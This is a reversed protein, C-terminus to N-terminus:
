FYSGFATFNIAPGVFVAFCVAPPYHIKMPIASGKPTGPGDYFFDTRATVGLFDWLWYDVRVQSALTNSVVVPSLYPDGTDRTPKLRRLYGLQSSGELRSSIFFDCGVYFGPGFSTYVHSPGSVPSPRSYVDNIGLSAAASLAAYRSSFWYLRFYFNHHCVSVLPPGTFPGEPDDFEYSPESALDYEIGVWKRRFDLGLGWTLVPHDDVPIYGNVEELFLGAAARFVLEANGPPPAAKVTYAAPILYVGVLFSNISKRL